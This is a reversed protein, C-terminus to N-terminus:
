ETDLIKNTLYAGTAMGLVYQLYLEISSVTGALNQQSIWYGAMICAPLLSALGASMVIINIRIAHNWFASLASGLGLALLLDHWTPIYNKTLTSDILVPNFYFYLTGVVVLLVTYWLM